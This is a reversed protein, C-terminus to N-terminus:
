LSWDFTTYCPFMSQKALIECRDAESLGKTMVTLLNPLPVIKTGAPIGYTSPNNEINDYLISLTEVDEYISAYSEECTLTATRIESLVNDILKILNESFDKTDRKTSLSKLMTKYNKLCTTLDRTYIKPM